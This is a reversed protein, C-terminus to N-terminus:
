ANAVDPRPIYGTPGTFIPLHDEQAYDMVTASPSTFMDDFIAAVRIYTLSASSVSQWSLHYLHQFLATFCM